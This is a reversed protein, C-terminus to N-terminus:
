RNDVRTIVREARLVRDAVSYERYLLSNGSNVLIGIGNGDETTVTDLVEDVPAMLPKYDTGDPKVLAPVVQDDGDIYGDSNTDRNRVQLYIAVVPKDDSDTPTCTCLKSIGDISSNNDAFLWRAKGFGADIFVVNRTPSWGPGSSLSGSRNESDTEVRVMRIGTGAITELDTFRLKEVVSKGDAVPKAVDVVNRNRWGASGAYMQYGVFAILLVLGLAAIALLRYLWRFFSNAETM